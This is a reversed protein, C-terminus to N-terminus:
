WNKIKHIRGFLHEAASLCKQYAKQNDFHLEFFGDDVNIRILNDKLFNKDTVDVAQVSITKLHQKFNVIGVEEQTYVNFLIFDYGNWQVYRRKWLHTCFKLNHGKINLYGQFFEKYTNERVNLWNKLEKMSQVSKHGVLAEEENSTYCIEVKIGYIDPIDPELIQLLRKFPNSQSKKSLKQDISEPKNHWKKIDHLEVVNEVFGVRRLKRELQSMSSSQKYDFKIDKFQVFLHFRVTILDKVSIPFYLEFSNLDDKKIEKIDILGDNKDEAAIYFSQINELDNTINGIIGIINFHLKGPVLEITLSKEELPSM